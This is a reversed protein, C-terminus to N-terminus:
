EGNSKFSHTFFPKCDHHHEYHWEQAPSNAQVEVDEVSAETSPNVEVAVEAEEAEEIMAVEAEELAVAVAVAV